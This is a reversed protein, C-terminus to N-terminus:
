LCPAAARLIFYVHEHFVKQGALSTQPMRKVTRIKQKHHTRHVVAVAQICRRRENHRALFHGNRLDTEQNSSHPTNTVWQVLNIVQSVVKSVLLDLSEIYNRHMYHGRNPRNVMGEGGM